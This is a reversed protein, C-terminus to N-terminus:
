WERASRVGHLPQYLSGMSAHRDSSKWVGLIASQAVPQERSLSTSAPVARRLEDLNFEDGSKYNDVKPEAQGEQLRHVTIM